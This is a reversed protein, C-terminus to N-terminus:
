GSTPLLPLVIRGLTWTPDHTKGDFDAFKNGYNLHNEILHVLSKINEDMQAREQLRKLGIRSKSAGSDMLGTVTAAQKLDAGHRIQFGLAFRSSPQRTWQRPPQLKAKKLMAVHKKLM